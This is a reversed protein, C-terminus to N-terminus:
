LLIWSFNEGDVFGSEPTFFRNIEFVEIVGRNLAEEMDNILGKRSYVDNDRSYAPDFRCRWVLPVGGYRVTPLDNLHEFHYGEIGGDDTYLGLYEFGNDRM